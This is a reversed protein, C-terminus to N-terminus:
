SKQQLTAVHKVLERIRAIAEGPGSSAQAKAFVEAWAPMDTKEHGKEVVKFVDDAPFAGGANKALQTLDPPCKRLSGAIAADGKGAPGHCSNCYVEYDAAGSYRTATQLGGALLLVPMLAVGCAAAVACKPNM